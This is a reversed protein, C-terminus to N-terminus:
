SNLCVTQWSSYHLLSFLLFCTCILNLIKYIPLKEWHYLISCVVNAIRSVSNTLRGYVCYVSAIWLVCRNWRREKLMRHLYFIQYSRSTRLSVSVKHFASCAILIIFYGVIIVVSLVRWDIWLRPMFFLLVPILLLCICVKGCKRPSFCAWIRGHLILRDNMFLM